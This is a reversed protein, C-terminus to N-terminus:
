RTIIIKGMVPQGNELTSTRYFYLGPTFSETNWNLLHIGASLRKDIVTTILQGLSNFISLNLRAAEQVQIQFTASSSVPNSLAQLSALAYNWTVSLGQSLSDVGELGSLSVLADNFEINAAGLDTLNELGTLSTMLPNDMLNLTGGIKKLNNLGFLNILGYNTYLSLNGGIYKLNELGTMDSLSDTNQFELGGFISDLINLGTLDSIDDYYIHVNGEIKTCGPYNVQFSDIQAQTTFTIGDPLCSQSRLNMQIIVLFTLFLFIKRM